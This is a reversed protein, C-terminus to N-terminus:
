QLNGKFDYDNYHTPSAHTSNQYISISKEGKLNNYLAIIGSPPCTYDGLGCRPIEVNTTIFGGLIACDFYDMNEEYYIGFRNGLRGDITKGGLNCWAPVTASSKVIEFTKKDEPIFNALATAAITQYGGMSTGTFYIKGNWYKSLNEIDSNVSEDTIFRLAQMNRLQMYLIYCDERDEYGSNVKGNGRGYSACVGSQLTKYYSEPQGNEYGHHTVNFTIEGVKPLILASSAGYGHFSITAYLSNPLANKPVCLYGACPTPGPVKLYVEYINVSNFSSESISIGNAKLTPVDDVSLKKVHYYNKYEM